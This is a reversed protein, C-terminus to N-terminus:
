GKWLIMSTLFDIITYLRSAIVFRPTLSSKQFDSEDSINAVQFDSIQYIFDPTDNM